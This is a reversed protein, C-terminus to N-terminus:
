HKTIPGRLERGKSKKSGRKFFECQRSLVGEQKCVFHICHSKPTLFVQAIIETSNNEQVTSFFKGDWSEKGSLLKPYRTTSNIVLTLFYWWCYSKLCLPSDSKGAGSFLTLITRTFLSLCKTFQLLKSELFQKMSNRKKFIKVLM